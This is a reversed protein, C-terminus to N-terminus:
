FFKLSKKHQINIFQYKPTVSFIVHYLSFIRIGVLHMYPKMSLKCLFRSHYRVRLMHRKLSKKIEYEQNCHPCPHMTKKKEKHITKHQRFKDYSEFTAQCINCVRLHKEHKEASHKKLAIM